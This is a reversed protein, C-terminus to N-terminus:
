MPGVGVKVIKVRCPTYKYPPLKQEARVIQGPEYPPEDLVRIYLLTGKKGIRHKTKAKYRAKAMSM